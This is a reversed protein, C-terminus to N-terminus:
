TTRALILMSFFGFLTMITNILTYNVGIMWSLKTSIKKPNEIKTDENIFFTREISTYKLTYLLGLILHLKYKSINNTKCIELLKSDNITSKRQNYLVNSRKFGQTYIYEFDDKNLM